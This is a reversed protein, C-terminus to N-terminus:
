HVGSFVVNGCRAQITKLDDIDFQIDVLKFVPVSIRAALVEPESGNITISAQILNSQSKIPTNRSQSNKMSKHGEEECTYCTLKFNSRDSYNRRQQNWKSLIDLDVTPSSLPINNDQTERSEPVVGRNPNATHQSPFFLKSSKYASGGKGKHGITGECSTIDRWGM